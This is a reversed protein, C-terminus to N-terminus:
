VIYNYLIILNILENNKKLKLKIKKMNKNM